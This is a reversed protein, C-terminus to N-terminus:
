KFPIQNSPRPALKQHRYSETKGGNARDSDRLKFLSRSNEGTSVRGM